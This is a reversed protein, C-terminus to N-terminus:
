SGLRAIWFNTAISALINFTTANGGGAPAVARALLRVFDGANLKYITTLALESATSITGSNVILNQQAIQMTANVDFLIYIDQVGNGSWDFFAGGGILYYGATPVTLRTPSTPNYYTDTDFQATTFPLPTEGTVPAGTLIGNTLRCGSFAIASSLISGPGGSGDGAGTDALPGPQVYCGDPVPILQEGGYASAVAQVQQQDLMTRLRELESRSLQGRENFLDM